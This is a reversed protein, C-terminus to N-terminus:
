LVRICIVIYTVEDSQTKKVSCNTEKKSPFYGKPIDDANGSVQYKDEHNKEPSDHIPINISVM